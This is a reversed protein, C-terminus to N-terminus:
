YYKSFKAQVLMLVKSIINNNTHYKIRSLGLFELSFFKSIEFTSLIESKDYYPM